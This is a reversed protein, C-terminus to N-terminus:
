TFRSGEGGAVEWLLLVGAAALLVGAAALAVRYWREVLRRRAVAVMGALVVKSGLLLGYFGVLFAVGRGPARGWTTSLIPAGVSLWFLWPHPSLINAVVGQWLDGRTGGSRVDDLTASRASAFTGAGLWLLYVAGAGGLVRLAVGPLADVALLTAVVIPADTIVPAVAVRVGAGFGRKLTNTLVLALLPGPSVGAGLGLGIGLLLEKVPERHCPPRPSRGWPPAPAV